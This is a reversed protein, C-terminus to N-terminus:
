EFHLLHLTIVFKGRLARLEKILCTKLEMLLHLLEQLDPLSYKNDFQILLIGEFNQGTPHFKNEQFLSPM